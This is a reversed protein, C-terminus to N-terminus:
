LLAKNRNLWYWGVGVGQLKGQLATHVEARAAIIDLWM